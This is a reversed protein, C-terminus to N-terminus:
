QARTQVAVDDDIRDAVLTAWDTSAGDDLELEIAGDALADLQARTALPVLIALRPDVRGLDIVSSPGSAPRLVLTSRSAPRHPVILLFRSDGQDVLMARPADIASVAPLVIRHAGEARVLPHTAVVEIVAGAGPALQLADAIAEDDSLRAHGSLPQDGCDGSALLDIAQEARVIRLSDAGEDVAPLRSGLDVTASGDNRFRHSVRVDALSGLLRVDVATSLRHLQVAQELPARTDAAKLEAATAAPVFLFALMEAAALAGDIVLHLVTM